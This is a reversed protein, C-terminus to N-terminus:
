GATFLLTEKKGTVLCHLRKKKKKKSHAAGSLATKSTEQHFPVLHKRPQPFCDKEILLPQGALPWLEM